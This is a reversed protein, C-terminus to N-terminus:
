KSGVNLWVIEAGVVTMRRIVRGARDPDDPYRARVRDAGSWPQSYSTMVRNAEDGAEFVFPWPDGDTGIRKLYGSEGDGWRCWVAYGSTTESTKWLRADEAM